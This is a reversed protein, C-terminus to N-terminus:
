GQEGIIKNGDMIVAKRGVRADSPNKEEMQVIDLDAGTDKPLSDASKSDGLYKKQLDKLEPSCMAATDAGGGESASGSSKVARWKPKAREAAQEPTLKRAKAAPRAKAKSRVKNKKPSKKAM